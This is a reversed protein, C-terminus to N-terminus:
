SKQPLKIGVLFSQVEGVIFTSDKASLEACDGYSLGSARAAVCLCFAFNFSLPVSPAGGNLLFDQEADILDKAKLSSLNLNLVKVDKDGVKIKNELTIKGM